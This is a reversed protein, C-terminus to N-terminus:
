SRDYRDAPRQRAPPRRVQDRNLNRRARNEQIHQICRERMASFLPTAGALPIRESHLSTRLEIWDGTTMFSTIPHDIPVETTWTSGLLESTISWHGTLDLTRGDSRTITMRETEDMRPRPDYPLRFYLGIRNSLLCSFVPVPDNPTRQKWNPFRYIISPTTSSPDSEWQAAAAGSWLAAALALASAISRM